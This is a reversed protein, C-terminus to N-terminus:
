FIRGRDTVFKDVQKLLKKKGPQKAYDKIQARGEVKFGVSGEKVKANLKEITEEYSKIKRQLEAELKAWKKAEAKVKREAKARARSEFKAKEQARVKGEIEAKLKEQAEAKARAYYMIREKAKALAQAYAGAKEEAKVVSLTKAMLRQQADSESINQEGPKFFLPEAFRVAIRCVQESLNDIRCVRGTRNFFVADLSSNSDFHPVGFDATVQQGPHINSQDPHCLFAMGRSCVDFMQGSLPKGKVGGSFRIPWRYHLRQEARREDTKEMTKAVFIKRRLYNFIIM